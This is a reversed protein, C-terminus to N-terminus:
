LQQLEGSSRLQRLRAFLQQQHKQINVDLQQDLRQRQKVAGLLLQLDADLAAWGALPLRRGAAVESHLRQLRQLAAELPSGKFAADKLQLKLALLGLDLQGLDTRLM